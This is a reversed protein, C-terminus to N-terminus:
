IVDDTSLSAGITEKGEVVQVDIQKIECEFEMDEFQVVVRDGWFWDRGYRIQETDVLNCTFQRRPKMENLRSEAEATLSAGTPGQRSDRFGERMGFPSAGIRADDQATAIERLLGEGEGGAYIFNEETEYDEVYSAQSVNGLEASLILPNGSARTRDTGRQNIWTRFELTGYTPCIIDFYVRPTQIYTQDAIEQCVTLINRRSFAKDVVACLTADAQISLLASWDRGVGAGAGLNEYVIEKIMDDAEASKDVEPEGSAYAAIRRALLELANFAYVTLRREGSDLMRIQPFKRILWVTDTELGIRGDAPQRWIGLRGDLRFLSRDTDPPMDMIMRTVGNVSRSYTLSLFSDIQALRNGFPDAVDVYYNCEGVQYGQCIQAVSIPPLPAQYYVNLVPRYAATGNRVSAIDIDEFGPPVTGALDRDSRLSYYTNGGKVVWSIDLNGSTYPTNVVLGLTNRWIASDAPSTLCDDYAIEMNVPNPLAEFASWDHKVIEVNFENTITNNSICTLTMTVRTITANAPIATTDFKLFGRHVYYTAQLRQGVRFSTGADDYLTATSRATAYVADNGRIHLDYNAM